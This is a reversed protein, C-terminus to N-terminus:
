SKEETTEVEETEPTEMVVGNIADKVLTQIAKQYEKTMSSLSRYGEYLFSIYANGDIETFELSLYEGLTVIDCHKMVDILSKESVRNSIRNFFVVRMPKKLPDFNRMFERAVLTYDCLLVFQNAQEYYEQEYNYGLYAIVYDFKEFVDPTIMRDAVVSVENANGIDGLKPVAMFIDHTQSNDILLVDNDNNKLSVATLFPFLGNESGAFVILKTQQKAAAQQLQEKKKSFLKM